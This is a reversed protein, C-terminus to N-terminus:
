SQKRSSCFVDSIFVVLYIDSEVLQMNSVLCCVVAGGVWNILSTENAYVLLRVLDGHIVCNKSTFKEVITCCLSM